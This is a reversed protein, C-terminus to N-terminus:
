GYVFVAPPAPVDFKTYFDSDPLSSLVNDFTAGQKRLFALVQDQYDEPKKGPSGTFDTSVSICAIQEPGHRRHLEVLGPFEKICPPCTTAWVDMVVVKGRHSAILDELGKADLIKLNVTRELGGAGDTQGATPAVPGHETITVKRDPARADATRVPNKKKRVRSCGEVALGIVVSLGGALWARRTM